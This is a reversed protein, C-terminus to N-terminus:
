IEGRMRRRGVVRLLRHIQDVALTGTTPDNIAPSLAKLAIDVMIRFAFLPDQELTREPGFAVAERLAHDDIDTAGGYLAFLPQDTALFDGVHPRFEVVGRTRRAERMVTELDVALVIESRGTHAVVRTPDERVGDLASSEDADGAVPDPYVAAIVQLGGQAVRALISVPRLLRAAYDILFLFVVITAVGLCGTLFTVLDHVKDEMRNLAMVSFILAFVFLGVSYRVVNDRLLTTAIVRPTLQGGAIQIAVLLSGFTFILFSMNLTLVTQYMSKSGEVGLSMMDWQLWADLVRLIPVSILVALISLFPVIWLASRAYSTARYLRSWTLRRRIRHDARHWRTRLGGIINTLRSPSAM